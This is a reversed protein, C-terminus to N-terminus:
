RPSHAAHRRSRQEALDGVRENLQTLPQGDAARDLVQAEDPWETCLLKDLWPTLLGFNKTYRAHHMAHYSPSNFVKGMWTARYGAKRFEVNAHGLTNTYFYLVYYASIGIVSQPMWWSVMALFGIIGASFVFKEAFSFSVSTWPQTLRSRHHERHIGHLKPIHMARHTAYHWIETWAFAILFSVVARGIGDEVVRLAGAQFLTLLILAHVPTTILGNRREWADQGEAAPLDYVRKVPSARVHRDVLMVFPFNILALVTTCAWVTSSVWEPSMM